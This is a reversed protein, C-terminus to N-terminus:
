ATDSRWGANKETMQSASRTRATKHRWRGTHEAVRSREKRGGVGVGMMTLLGARSKLKDGVERVPLMEPCLM